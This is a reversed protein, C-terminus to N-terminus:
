QNIPVPESQQFSAQNISNRINPNLLNQSNKVIESLAQQFYLKSTNANKNLADREVLFQIMARYTNKDTFEPARLGHILAIRQAMHLCKQILEAESLNGSGAQTLTAITLFYRELIQIVNQAIATLLSYEHDNICHREYVGPSTQKLLGLQDFISLWCCVQDEVEQEPWPLYLEAKLYPYLKKSIDLIQSLEIVPHNIFFSALMSPMALVHQINNKFYSLLIANTEDLSLIDGMPHKIRELTELQEAYAIWQSANGKPLICHKSFPQQELLSQYLNLQEIVAEETMTNQPSTLLVTAILNIPTIVAAENIRTVVQKALDHTFPKLWQPRQDQHIDVSQWQSHQQDLLAKLHIPNGFNVHVQGLNKKLSKLTRIFGILSEKKKKKGRLESVYSSAEFVKEYGIYVPIFVIPKSANRIFSRITMSLMGTKPSLTRGTRSRTGEVFYETSYGQTFISHLYEDFVAAYLPNDRFSRRMFFAGGRRLISGIIPLNLNDGAAIQPPVFGEIYLVYSLLLYDIHSRHCPLYILEHDQHHNKLHHINYVQVGNYIKNWVWALTIELFRITTYSQNSAIEDGYKLAQQQVLEYTLGTDQVEQTIAQKVLPKNILTHVLTRRHSLDPGIVATRTHRFNVRMLRSTKRITREVDSSEHIIAKLSMPKGFEVYTNRGNVLITFFSRLPGRVAWTDGFWLKSLSYEKKAARGWFVSVPIILIDELVQSNHTQLAEILHVLNPHQYPITRKLLFAGGLRNLYFARRHLIRQMLPLPANIIPLSARQAEKDAVLQASFSADSFAYIVPLTEKTSLAEKDQIVVHTKVWFFLLKQCLRFWTQHIRQRIEM